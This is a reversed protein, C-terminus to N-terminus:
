PKGVLQLTAVTACAACKPASYYSYEQYDLPEYVAKAWHPEELTQWHRFAKLRFDLMWEPENKKASIARVVAENVGKDFTEVETQTYFGEKYGTKKSLLDHIEEYQPMESM